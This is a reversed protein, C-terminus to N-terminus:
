ASSQKLSFSVIGLLKMQFTEDSRTSFYGGFHTEFPKNPVIVDLAPIDVFVRICEKLRIIIRM